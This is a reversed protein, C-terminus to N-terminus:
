SSAVKFYHDKAWAKRQESFKIRPIDVIHRRYFKKVGQDQVFFGTKELYGQSYNPISLSFISPFYV